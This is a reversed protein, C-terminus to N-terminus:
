RCTPKSRELASVVGTLPSVHKRFRAVTARPSATRYGGSTMVLPGGADLEIPVPRRRPDRLKKRGCSPMAAAACRLAERHGRGPSRSQHHSREIRDCFGHRDSERSEVAALQIGNQGFPQRALPSASVRRAQIRDLMGKIERNRQMRDALCRWCASKGPIFVPGVLPFIGSPQVLLWPTRDSLHRSNLEALRGDLYDGVLAVTLDPSRQVVRVGLRTLAAGFDKTGQVDISQVRIRCAQLRDQV